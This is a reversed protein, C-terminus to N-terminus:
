ENLEGALNIVRSIKYDFNEAMQEVVPSIVELFWINYRDKLEEQEWKKIFNGSMHSWQHLKDVKGQTGQSEEFGLSIKLIEKTQRKLNTSNERKCKKCLTTVGEDYSAKVEIEQRYDEVVISEGELQVRESKEQIYKEIAMEKLDSYIAASVERMLHFLILPQAPSGTDEYLVDWSKRLVSAVDISCFRELKDALAEIDKKTIDKTVM